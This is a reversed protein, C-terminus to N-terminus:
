AVTGPLIGHFDMQGDESANIVVRAPAEQRYHMTSRHQQREKCTQVQVILLSSARSSPLCIAAELLYTQSTQTKLEKYSELLGWLLLWCDNIVGCKEHSVHCHDKLLRTALHFVHQFWKWGDGGRSWTGHVRSFDECAVGQPRTFCSEDGGVASYATTCFKILNYWHHLKGCSHFCEFMMHLSNLWIGYPAKSKKGRVGWGAWGVNWRNFDEFEAEGDDQDDEDDVEEWQAQIKRRKLRWDEFCCWVFCKSSSFFLIQLSELLHVPSSQLYFLFAEFSVQKLLFETSKPAMGRKCCFLSILFPSRSRSRSFGSKAFDKTSCVWGNWSEKQKQQLELSRISFPVFFLSVPICESCFGKWLVREM